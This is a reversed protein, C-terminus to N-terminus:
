KVTIDRPVQVKFKRGDGVSTVGFYATLMYEGAPVYIEPVSFYEEWFAADEDDPNWMGGKLLEAKRVEGKEWLEYIGIEDTIGSIDYIGGALGVSLCPDGRCIYIYDEPGIYAAEAYATIESDATFEKPSYIRVMFEDSVAETYAAYEKVEFEESNEYRLRSRIYGDEVRIAYGNLFIVKVTREPFEKGSYLICGNGDKYGSDDYKFFDRDFYTLVNELYEEVKDRGGNQIDTKIIPMYIKDVGSLDDIYCSLSGDNENYEIEAYKSGYEEIFSLPVMLKGNIILPAKELRYVESVESGGKCDLPYDKLILAKDAGVTIKLRDAMYASKTEDNWCIIDNNFLAMFDAAPVMVVGETEAPPVSFEFPKGNVTTKNVAGQATVAYLLSAAAALVLFMKRM